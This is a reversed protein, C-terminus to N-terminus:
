FGGISSIVEPRFTPKVIKKVSDVFKDAADIDGDGDTDSSQQWMLGSVNDTVTGDGNDTVVGTTGTTNIGTVSLTDSTDPDTDNSSNYWRLGM